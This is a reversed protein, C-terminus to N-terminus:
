RFANLVIVRPLAQVLPVNRSGPCLVARRVGHARLLAVLQLVNKKDSYM